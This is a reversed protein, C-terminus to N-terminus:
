AKLKSIKEVHFTMDETKIEGFHVVEYDLLIEKFNELVMSLKLPPMAVSNLVKKTEAFIDDLNNWDKGVPGLYFIIQPEGVKPLGIGEVFHKGVRHRLKIRSPALKNYINSSNFTLPEVLCTASYEGSYQATSISIDGACIVKPCSNKEVYEKIAQKIENTLVTVKIKEVVM